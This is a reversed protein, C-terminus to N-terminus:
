KLSTWFSTGGQTWYLTNGPRGVGGQGIGTGGVALALSSPDIDTGSALLRVGSTDLAEVDFYPTQSLTGTGVTRGYNDAIWAVTGDSKVVLAVVNGVGVVGAEPKVPTGTAVRHLVKGDRLDRVAVRWEARGRGGPRGGTASEEYAVIPGALTELELGGGGEASGYPLPGLFVPRHGYACGWVGLEGTPGPPEPAKFVQAHADAAILRAHGPACRAPKKQASRAGSSPVVWLLSALMVWALVFRRMGM